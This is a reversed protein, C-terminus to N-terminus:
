DEIIERKASTYVIPSKNQMEYMLEFDSLHRSYEIIKSKTNGTDSNYWTYKVKMKEGGFLPKM